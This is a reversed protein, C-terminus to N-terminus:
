TSSILALVTAQAHSAATPIDWKSLDRKEVVNSIGRVETFPVGYLACVQAAAAGEMNECLAGFREELAQAGEDSGTVTQVTLFAGEGVSTGRDSATRTAASLAQETLAADTPFVNFAPPDTDLVPIGITGGDSWGSADAVGFEGMIESTAVAIDGKGLGSSPFAGGIGCQIVHDVRRGEMVATLAQATNVLGIGSALVAVRRGAIQGFVTRRHAFVTPEIGGMADLIETHEQRTATLVLYDLRSTEM